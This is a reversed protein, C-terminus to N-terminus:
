RPASREVWRIELSPHIIRLQNILGESDGAVPVSEPVPM